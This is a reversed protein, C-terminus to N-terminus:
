RLHDLATQAEQTLSASAVGSALEQLLRKAEASRAHELVAVARLQRLTEPSPVLTREGLAELLREMRRKKEPSPNAQLADRLAPFAAHGLDKLRRTAAERREFSDEDLQVLLPRMVEESAPRVPLLRESLWPVIGPALDALRWMARWARRPDTERLDSWLSELERSAVPVPRRPPFTGDWILVTGDPHGTALRRGDPSFDLCAASCAPNVKSPVMEPLKRRFVVQGTELDWLRVGYFLDSTALLRNDPSFTMQPTGMVELRGLIKSTAVEWVYVGDM